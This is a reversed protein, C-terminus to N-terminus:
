MKGKETEPLKVIYFFALFACQMLSHFITQTDKALCFDSFTDNRAFVKSRAHLLKNFSLGQNRKGFRRRTGVDMATNVRIINNNFFEILLTFITSFITKEAHKS